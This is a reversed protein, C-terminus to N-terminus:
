LFISDKWTDAMTMLKAFAALGATTKRNVSAWKALVNRYGCIAFLTTGECDFWQWPPNSDICYELDQLQEMPLYAIEAMAMPSSPPDGLISRKQDSDGQSLM